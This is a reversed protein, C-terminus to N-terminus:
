IKDWGLDEWFVKFFNRGEYIQQISEQKMLGQIKNNYNVITDTTGICHYELKGIHHTGIKWNLEQKNM